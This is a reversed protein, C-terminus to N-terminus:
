GQGRPDGKRPGQLLTLTATTCMGGMNVYVRDKSSLEWASLAFHAPLQACKEMRHKVLACVKQRRANVLAHVCVTSLIDLICLAFLMPLNADSAHVTCAAGLCHVRLQWTHPTHCRVPTLRWSCMCTYCSFYSCHVSRWQCHSGPVFAVSAGVPYLEGNQM